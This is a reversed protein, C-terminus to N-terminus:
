VHARGIENIENNSLDSWMDFAKKQSELVDTFVTKM